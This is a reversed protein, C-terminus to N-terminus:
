AAKGKEVHERVLLKVISAVSRAEEKAQKRLVDAHDKPVRAQVLVDSM